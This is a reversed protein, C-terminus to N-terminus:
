GVGRIALALVFRRGPDDIDGLLERLRRVRYRVTQPHLHLVRAAETPRGPHDLWARLTELLRTRSAETLEDLPALARRSHDALLPADGHVILLDLHEEAIAPSREAILGSEALSLAARARELSAPLGSVESTPGLAAIRGRLAAGIERRRGASAADPVIAASIGEGFPAAIVGEGLATALSGAREERALLVAASAPESWGAAEAAPGTLEPSAAADLLLAILRERRLQAEGAASAQEVAYGEASFASLEDIYAFIAEALATLEDQTAGAASAADAVRRWAVRAGVRYAALLAELSRGQRVEGRGLNFYVLRFRELDGDDSSDIEGVFRALAEGVGTRVNRGFRGELPQAYEPVSQPIAAILEDVLRPLEARLSTALNSGVVSLAESYPRRPDTM